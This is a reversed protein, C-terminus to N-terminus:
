NYNTYMLILVIPGSWKAWKLCIGMNVPKMSVASDVTYTYNKPKSLLINVHDM